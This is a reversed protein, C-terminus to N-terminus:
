LSASDWFPASHKIVENMATSGSWSENVLWVTGIVRIFM